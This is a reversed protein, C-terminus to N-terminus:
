TTVVVGSKVQEQRILDSALEEFQELSSASYRLYGDPDMDEIHRRIMELADEEANIDISGSFSTRLPGAGLSYFQELRNETSTFPDGRYSYLDSLIGLIWDQRQSPMERLLERINSIAFVTINSNPTARDAELLLFLPACEQSLESHCHDLVVYHCLPM